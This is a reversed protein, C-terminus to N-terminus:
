ISFNGIETTNNVHTGGCAQEDIDNIQVLRIKNLSSPLLSIVTKIIGDRQEAEERDIIKTYVDHSITLLNKLSQELEEFPIDEIIEPSFALELRAHDREIQSSTALANYHKYLYGSIVHLLTHYRMNQFRWDWDIQLTVGQQSD